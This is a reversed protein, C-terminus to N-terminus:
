GNKAFNARSFGLRDILKMKEEGGGVVYGEHGPDNGTFAQIDGAGVQTDIQQKVNLKLNYLAVWIAFLGTLGAAGEKYLWGDQNDGLLKTAAGPSLKSPLYRYFDALMNDFNGSGIKATIYTSINGLLGKAKIENLTAMFTGVAESYKAVTQKATNLATTDLQVRPVPMEGSVFWIPGADPLGGLGKLPQDGAGIDPIFTHVAIGAVSQAIKAGTPSNAKVRYTVTNPKFTYYGRNDQLRGAYLLDGMYFGRFGGPIITELAPFLLDIKEYLDNRNAGRNVDYQRFAEPSTVRGEGSKKDFMHKDAVILDGDVNRGFVLAPFGDWKITTVQKGKVMSELDAIAKQAGTIGDSFVRDEPHVIRAGEALVPQPKAYLENIKM